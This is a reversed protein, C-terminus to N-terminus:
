AAPRAIQDPRATAEPWEGAEKMGVQEWAGGLNGEGSGPEGSTDGGRGDNSTKPVSTTGYSGTHDPFPNGPGRNDDQAERAAARRSADRQEGSAGARTQPRTDDAQPRPWTPQQLADASAQSPQSPQSSSPQGETPEAGGPGYHPTTAM